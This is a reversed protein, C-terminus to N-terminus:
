FNKAQRQRPFVETLSMENISPRTSSTSQELCHRTRSHLRYAPDKPLPLTVSSSNLMLIIKAMTPRAAPDEQACLLSIHICRLVEHNSFSNRLSPDLVQLPTGERWHRWAQVPVVFLGFIGNINAECYCFAFLLLMLSRVYSPLDEAQDSQYMLKNKKGSVIELVIVGFSYVDSKVSFQGHIAYEPPMYGSSFLLLFLHHFYVHLLYPFFNFFFIDLLM